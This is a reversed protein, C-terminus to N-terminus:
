NAEFERVLHQANGLQREPVFVPYRDVFHHLKSDVVEKGIIGHINWEGDDTNVLNSNSTGRLDSDDDSEGVIKRRRSSTINRLGPSQGSIGPISIFARSVTHHV